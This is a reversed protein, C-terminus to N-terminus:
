SKSETRVSPHVPRWEHYQLRCPNCHYFPAMTLALLPMPPPSMPPSM